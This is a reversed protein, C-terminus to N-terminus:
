IINAGFIEFIGGYKEVDTSLDTSLQTDSWPLMPNAADTPLDM